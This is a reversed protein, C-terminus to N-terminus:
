WLFHLIKLRRALAIPTDGDGAAANADAGAKLLLRIIGEHEGEIASFLATKGNGDTTALNAGFGILAKVNAEHGDRAAKHLLTGGDIAHDVDAGKELLLRATIYLERHFAYSFAANADKNIMADYAGNELLLRVIGEHGNRDAEYLPTGDLLDNAAVNAGNELLLQAISEHGKKAAEHLLDGFPTNVDTGHELLLRLVNEYNNSVAQSLLRYGKLGTITTCEKELLLLVAEENASEVAYDLATMGYNCTELQHAGNNLLLKVIGPHRNITAHMLPTKGRRDKAEICSGRELFLSVLAERGTSAAFSLATSGDFDGLEPGRGSPVTTEDIAHSTEIELLAKVADQHDKLIAVFMSNGYSVCNIDTRRDLGSTEKILRALNQSALIYLLNADFGFGPRRFEFKEFFGFLLVWFDVDFSVLFQKQSDSSAAANSHILIFRTAYDLFPYKTLVSARLRKAEDSTGKPLPKPFYLERDMSATSFKFYSNCCQQLKSHSQSEFETAALAPWLEKLGDKLWFERVSEHIFQVTPKKGKTVGALGKSSSVIFRGMEVATIEEPDSETLADPSLGSVVAFYYEEPTLPRKAFLIWQICLRLDGLNIQDRGLIEKFLESLKAPLAALRKKVDFIRGNRYEAKLIDVVLVVWMFIGKAKAQVEAKVKVAAKGTGVKLKNRIFLAIDKEHGEQEELDITHSYQIDIQPYYRSSFCITLPAGHLVAAKCVEEFYEILEEVQNVPCEDLADVFIALPTSAQRKLVGRLMDQLAELQGPSAEPGRSATQLQHLSQQHEREEFVGLLEPVRRLLQYLLSRYMGYISRELIEGRANFFFAITM